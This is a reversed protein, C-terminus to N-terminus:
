ILQKITNMPLFLKESDPLRIFGYREYFAEAYNNIRDVVVAM